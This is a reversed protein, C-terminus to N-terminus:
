IDQNYDVHAGIVNLKEAEIKDLIDQLNDSEFYKIIPSEQVVYFILDESYEKTHDTPINLTFEDWWIRYKKTLQAEIDLEM